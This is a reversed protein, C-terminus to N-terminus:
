HLQVQTEECAEPYTKGTLLSYFEVCGCVYSRINHRELHVENCCMEFVESRETGCYPCLVITDEIAGKLDAPVKCGHAVAPIRMARMEPKGSVLVCYESRAFVV